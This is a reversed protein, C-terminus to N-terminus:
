MVDYTDFDQYGDKLSSTQVEVQGPEQRLQNSVRQTRELKCTVFWRIQEKLQGLYNKLSTIELVPRIAAYVKEPVIRTQYWFWFYKDFHVVLCMFKPGSHLVLTEAALELKQDLTLWIAGLM